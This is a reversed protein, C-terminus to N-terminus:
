YFRPRSKEDGASTARVIRTKYIGRREATAAEFTLSLIPHVPTMEREDATQEAANCKFQGAASVRM